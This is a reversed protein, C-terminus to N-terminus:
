NQMHSMKIHSVQCQVARCSKRTGSSMKISLTILSTKAGSARFHKQCMNIRQLKM